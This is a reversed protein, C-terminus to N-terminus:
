SAIKSEYHYWHHRLIKLSEFYIQPVFKLSSELSTILERSDEIVKLKESMSLSSQNLYKDIRHLLTFSNQLIEQSRNTSSQIFDNLKACSNLFENKDIQELNTLHGMLYLTQIARQIYDEIIISIHFAYLLPRSNNQFMISESFIASYARMLQSTLNQLQSLNKSYVLLRAITSDFFESRSFPISLGTTNIKVREIKDIPYRFYMLTTRNPKGTVFFLSNQIIRQGYYNDEPWNRSEFLLSINNVFEPHSAFLVLKGDGFTSVVWNPTGIIKNLIPPSISGELTITDFISVCESNKGLYVFWPGSFFDKITKNVGFTLPHSSNTIVSTSIFLDKLIPFYMNMITDSMSTTLSLPFSQKEPQYAYSLSIISLPSLFGSSAVQAGYCSGIFGGGQTVFRRIVNFSQKDLLSQLAETVRAPRPEYPWMFVNYTDLQLTTEAEGDLLFDFNLFGGADAIQLYAPWGYRISTGFHQAIKPEILELSKVTLPELSLYGVLPYSFTDLEADICYDFLISSILTDRYTDGLFPIIFTGPSFSFNFCSSMNFISVVTCKVQELSWYVTINERLLDNVLVRTRSNLLTEFTTDTGSPLPIIFGYVM